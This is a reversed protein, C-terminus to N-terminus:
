RREVKVSSIRHNEIEEIKFTFRKYTIQDGQKPIKGTRKLLFGSLTDYGKGKLKMNIQSLTRWANNNISQTSMIEEVLKKSLKLSEEMNLLSEAYLLKILNDSKNLAYASKFAVSAKQFEGQEKYIEGLLEPIFRNQPDKKIAEKLLLEAKKYRAFRFHVMADLYNDSFKESKIESLEKTFLAIKISAKAFSKRIQESFGEDNRFKMKGDIDEIRRSSLPHSRLYHKKKDTFKDSNNHLHRLFHVLYKGSIGIENLTKIGIADASSEQARSFKMLDGIITDHSASMAGMGGGGGGSAVAILGILTSITMKNQANKYERSIALLHGAKIHGLEHAIVGALLEPEQSFSILGSSIFINQGGAVFANLEDDNYIYVNVSKKSLGSAKILPESIQSIVEEIESDRITGWAIVNQTCCFFTILFVTLFRFRCVM